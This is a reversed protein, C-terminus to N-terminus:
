KSVTPLDRLPHFFFFWKIQWIGKLYGHKRMTQKMGQQIGRITNPCIWLEVGTLWGSSSDCRYFSFVNAWEDQKSMSSFGSSTNEAANHPVDVTQTLIVCGGCTGLHKDWIHCWERKARPRYPQNPKGARSYLLWWRWGRGRLGGCCEVGSLSDCENSIM